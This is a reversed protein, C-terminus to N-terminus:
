IRADGGRVRPVILLVLGVLVVAIGLLYHVFIALVIGIVILLLGLPM